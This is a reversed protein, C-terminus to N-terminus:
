GPSVPRQIRLILARVMSRADSEILIMVGLYTAAGVLVGTAIGLAHGMHGTLETVVVYMVLAGCVARSFMKWPIDVRVIRRGMVAVAIALVGYSLLTTMAAGRIGFRPVLLLNVGINLGAAAIMIIM